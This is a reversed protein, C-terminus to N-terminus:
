KCTAGRQFLPKMARLMDTTFRPKSEPRAREDRSIPRYFDRGRYMRTDGKGRPRINIVAAILEATQTWAFDQRAEWATVIERLTM